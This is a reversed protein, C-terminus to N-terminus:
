CQKVMNLVQSLASKKILSQKIVKIVSKDLDLLTGKIEMVLPSM